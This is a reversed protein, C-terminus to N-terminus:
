MFFVDKITSHVVLVQIRIELQKESAGCKPNIKTKLKIIQNFDSM